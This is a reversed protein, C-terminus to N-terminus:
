MKLHGLQTLFAVNDWTIWTEVIKGDELRHVGAFDLVVRKNSPPFPGMQGTQTGTYTAYFAVYNDEAVLHKLEFKQDPIVARDARIFAKFDELSRVKIDPTAQCHRVYNPAIVEHMRDFDGNGVIEFAREVIAKNKTSLSNPQTVGTGAICVTTLFLLLLKM